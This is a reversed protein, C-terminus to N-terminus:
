MGNESCQKLSNMHKLYVMPEEPAEDRFHEYTESGYTFPADGDLMKEKILQELATLKESETYIRIDVNDKGALAYRFGLALLEKYKQELLHAVHKKDDAITLVVKNIEGTTIYECNLPEIYDSFAMTSLNAEIYSKATKFAAQVFDDSYLDDDKNEEVKTSINPIFFVAVDDQFLEDCVAKLMQEYKAELEARISMPCEFAIFGQALTKIRLPAIHTKLAKESLIEMTRDRIIVMTHDLEKADNEYTLVGDMKVPSYGEVEEDVCNEGITLYIAVDRQLVKRFADEIIKKYNRQINEMSLENEASLSVIGSNDIDVLKLSYISEYLELETLKSELVQVVREFCTNKESTTFRKDPDRSVIRDEVLVFLEIAVDHLGDASNQDKYYKLCVSSKPNLNNKRLYTSLKSLATQYLRFSGRFYVSVVDDFTVSPIFDFREDIDAKTGNIPFLFEVDWKARDKRSRGHSVRVYGDSKSIKNMLLYNEIENLIADTDETEGRFRLVNRLTISSKREPDKIIM